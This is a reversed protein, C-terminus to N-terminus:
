QRVPLWQSPRVPWPAVHVALAKHRQQQEYRRRQDQEDDEDHQRHDIRRGEREEVPGAVTRDGVEDTELVVVVHEGVAVEAGRHAVAQEDIATESAMWSGSAM